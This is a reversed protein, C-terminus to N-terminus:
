SLDGVRVRPEARGSRIAELQLAFSPVVFSPNQGRGIHNFARACIVALGDSRHMQFGALEAAAKSTAYPSLPRLPHDEAARTGPAVPGYVEASSVLVLRAARAQDRLAALLHVTGLATVAF